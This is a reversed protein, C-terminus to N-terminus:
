DSETHNPQLGAAALNIAIRELTNIAIALPRSGHRIAIYGIERYAKAADKGEDGFELMMDEITAQTVYLKPDDCDDPIEIPTVSLLMCGRIPNGEQAHRLAMKGWNELITDNITLYGSIADNVKIPVREGKGSQEAM